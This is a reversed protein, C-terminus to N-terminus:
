RELYRRRVLWLFWPVGLLALAMGPPLRDQEDVALVLGDAAALLGAGLVMSGILQRHLREGLWFRAMHPVVLGV